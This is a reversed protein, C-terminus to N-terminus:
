LRELVERQQPTLLDALEPKDEILGQVDALDILRKSRRRAPDMAARLKARLLDDVRIVRFRIAGAQYIDSTEVAERLEPDDTFQVPTGDPANWNESHEFIGTRSFGANELSERPIEERSVVAVDIDLTTRPESRYLQLAIGGIVAYRTSTADFVAALLELAEAKSRQM